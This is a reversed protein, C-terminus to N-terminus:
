SVLYHSVPDMEFYVLEGGTLAIVVQVTFWYIYLYLHYFLILLHFIQGIFNYWYRNKDSVCDWRAVTLIVIVCIEPTLKMSSSLLNQNGVLIECLIHSTRQEFISLLIRQKAARHFQGM